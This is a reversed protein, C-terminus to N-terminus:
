WQRHMNPPMNPPGPSYHGHGHPSMTHMGMVGAGHPSHVPHYRNRMLMQFAGFLLLTLGILLGLLSVFILIRRRPDPTPQIGAGTNVHTGPGVSPQNDVGGPLVQVPQGGPPPQPGSPVQGGNPASTAPPPTSVAPPPQMHSGLQGQLPKLLDFVQGPPAGVTRLTNFLALAPQGTYMQVMDQVGAGGCRGANISGVGASAVCSSCGAAGLVFCQNGPNECFHDYIYYDLM